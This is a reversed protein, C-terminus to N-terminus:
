GARGPLMQVLTRSTNMGSKAISVSNEHLNMLIKSARTKQGKPLVTMGEIARM